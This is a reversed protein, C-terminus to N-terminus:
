SRWHWRLSTPTESCVWVGGSPKALHQADCIASRSGKRVFPDGRLPRLHLVVANCLDNSVTRTVGLRSPTPPLVKPLDPVVFGLLFSRARSSSWGRRGM